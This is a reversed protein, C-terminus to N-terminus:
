GEAAAIREAEDKAPIVVAVRQDPRKTPSVGGPYGSM